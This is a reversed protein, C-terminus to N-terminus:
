TMVARAQTHFFSRVLHQQSIDLLQVPKNLAKSLVEAM